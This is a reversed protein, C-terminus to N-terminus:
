ESPERGLDYLQGVGIDMAEESKETNPDLRPAPQPNDAGLHDGECAARYCRWCWWLARAPNHYMTSGQPPFALCARCRKSGNTNKAKCRAREFESPPRPRPPLEAKWQDQGNGIVASKRSHARIWYLPGDPGHLQVRYWGAQARTVSYVGALEHHAIARAQEITLPPPGGIKGIVTM